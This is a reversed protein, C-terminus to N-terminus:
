ELTNKAEIVTIKETLPAVRLPLAFKQHETQLEKAGKIVANKLPLRLMTETEGASLNGPLAALPSTAKFKETGRIAPREAVLYLLGTDTHEAHHYSQFSLQSTELSCSLQSSNVLDLELELQVMTQQQSHLSLSDLFYFDGARYLFRKSLRRAALISMKRKLQYALYQDQLIPMHSPPVIHCYTPLNRDAPRHQISATLVVDFWHPDGVPIFVNAGAAYAKTISDHITTAHFVQAELRFAQAIKAIASSLQNEQATELNPPTFFAYM